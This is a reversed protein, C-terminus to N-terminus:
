KKGYLDSKLETVKINYVKYYYTMYSSNSSSMMYQCEWFLDGSLQIQNEGELDKYAPFMEGPNCFIYTNYGYGSSVSFSASSGDASYNIQSRDMLEDKWSSLIDGDCGCKVQKKCGAWSFVPLIIIIAVLIKRIIYLKM